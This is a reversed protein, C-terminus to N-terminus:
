RGAENMAQENMKAFALHCKGVKEENMIDIDKKYMDKKQKMGLKRCTSM